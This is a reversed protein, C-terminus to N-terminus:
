VAGTATGVPDDTITVAVDTVSVVFDADAVIVMVGPVIETVNLGAGGVEISAPKVCDNMATTFLSAAFAPTVHDTLQPLAPAHPVKLGVAM